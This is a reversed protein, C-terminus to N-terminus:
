ALFDWYTVIGLDASSENYPLQVDSVQGVFLSTYAGREMNPLTVYHQMAYPIDIRVFKKDKRYAVMRGQNAIGMADLDQRPKIEINLKPDIGKGVNFNKIFELLNSTYNLSMRNTVDQYVFTPVLFTTPVVGINQNSQALYTTMIGNFLSAVETDEMASINKDVTFVKVLSDSNFLGTAEQTGTRQDKGLYALDQVFRDWGAMIEDQYIQELSRKMQVKKMKEMEVFNLDYGIEFTHVKAIRQKMTANVRPINYNANNGVANENASFRSAWNIVKYEIYDVFGGNTDVPVDEAWTTNWIPEYDENHLKALTTSLFAFNADHLKLNKIGRAQLMADSAGTDRVSIMNKGKPAFVKDKSISDNLTFMGM